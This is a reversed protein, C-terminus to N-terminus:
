RRRALRRPKQHLLEAVSLDCMSETTYRAAYLVVSLVHLARDGDVPVQLMGYARQDRALVDDERSMLFSQLM